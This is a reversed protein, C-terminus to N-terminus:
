VFFKEDFMNGRGLIGKPDFARKLEVMENIYREGMMVQLYKSKLKGIGHEASVTGGLM